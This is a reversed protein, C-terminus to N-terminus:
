TSPEWASIRSRDGYAFDYLLTLLSSSVSVSFQKFSTVYWFRQFVIQATSM